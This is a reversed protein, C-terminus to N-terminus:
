YWKVGVMGGYGTLERGVEVTEIVTLQCGYNEALQEIMEHCDVESAYVVSKLQCERLGSLVEHKGFVLREPNLDRIEWIERLSKRELEIMSRTLSEQSRAFLSEMEYGNVGAVESQYLISGGLVRRFLDSKVVATRFEALGGIILGVVKLRNLDNDYYLEVLREAVMKSNRHNKDDRKRGIRPASQGGKRQNKDVHM